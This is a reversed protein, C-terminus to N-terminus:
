ASRDASDGLRSLEFTAPDLGAARIADELEPPPTSLRFHDVVEHLPLGVERWGILYNRIKNFRTLPYRIPHTRNFRHVWKLFPLLRTGRGANRYKQHIYGEEGGFGQFSRNFGLWANKRCCFVGLGHMPIEPPEFDPVALFRGNAAWTGYMEDRWVPELHSILTKQDDMLLPGQYLDGPDHTLAFFDLLKKLSVPALLVHADICLVIEARAAEFVFNRPAGTGVTASYPVYRGNAVWNEIFRRTERGQEGNPDNDVILIETLPMLPAHYMRLAQVSFYVGEFDNHCAMGVTLRPIESILKM